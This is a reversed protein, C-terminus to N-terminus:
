KGPAEVNDPQPPPLLADLTKHMHVGIALHHGELWSALPVRATYRRLGPLAFTVLVTGDDQPRQDIVHPYSEVGNVPRPAPPRPMWDPFM